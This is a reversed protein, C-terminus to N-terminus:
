LLFFTFQLTIFTIFQLFTLASTRREQIYSDETTSSDVANVIPFKVVLYQPLEGRNYIM